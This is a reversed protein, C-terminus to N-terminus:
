TLMLAYKPFLYYIKKKKKFFHTSFINAHPTTNNGTTCSCRRPYLTSQIGSFRSAFTMCDTLTSSFLADRCGWFGCHVKLHCKCCESKHLCSKDAKKHFIYGLMSKVRATITKCVTYIIFDKSLCAMENLSFSWFCLIWFLTLVSLVFDVPSCLPVTGSLILSAAIFLLLLCTEPIAILIVYVWLVSSYFLFFCPNLPEVFFFM